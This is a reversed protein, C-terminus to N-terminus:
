RREISILVGNKPRLTLLPELEVRHGSAQSVRYQLAITALILQMEIMAFTNGVCIRPGSSFPMYAHRPRNASCEASFHEPYFQEPKEWFDPHRHSFYTSWLIYSNAPIHYGDIEDDQIARRMLMWAPPYLRMAEELVMRTYDLQPLDEVTPIRGALIHDLEAHLREQAEPHQALLYWTWALINASTEHGALLLTMVEDHLQKDDMRQGNEDVANLLISLMDGVDEQQQRRKRIVEYVITDMTQLASWFRRNRTTCIFLPPFPMHFYDALFASAQLFAQGFNNTEASVSVNFLSKSVIQLTLNSMAKDVDFVQRERVYTGWQHLMASTADTMLTGLTAIYQRHFAPQVLKRQRLWDDGGIVTVLGNGVVPRLIRFMLVDKDYNRHNDQLVYKIYDPHSIFVTPWIVLHFQAIYGYHKQLEALFQLPAHRFALTDKLPNLSHPGPVIKHQLTTM